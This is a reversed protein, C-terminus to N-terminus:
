ISSFSGSKIGDLSLIRTCFIGLKKAHSSYLIVDTPELKFIKHPCGCPAQGGEGRGFADM